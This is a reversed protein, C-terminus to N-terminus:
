VDSQDRSAQEDAKFEQDAPGINATRKTFSSSVLCHIDASEEHGGAGCTSGMADPASVHGKRYRPIAIRGAAQSRGISHRTLADFAFRRTYGHDEVDAVKGKPTAVM